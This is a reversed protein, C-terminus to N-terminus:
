QVTVTAVASVMRTDVGNLTVVCYYYYTGATLAKPITFSAATAGAVPTGGTNVKGTGQYWQYALTGSAVTAVVTLNGTIAGAQVTMDQPQQSITIPTVTGGSGPLGIVEDFFREEFEPTANKGWNDWTYQWFNNGPFADLPFNTGPLTVDQITVTNTATQPQDEPLRFKCKFLWVYRYRQAGWPTTGTMKRRYGVAVYPFENQGDYLFGGSADVIMGYILEIEDPELGGAQLELDAATAGSVTDRLGNDAYYDASEQRPAVRMRVLESCRIPKGFLVEGEIDTVKALHCLDVGIGKSKKVYSM